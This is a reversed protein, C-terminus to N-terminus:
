NIGGFCLYKIELYDDMGYKSGERGFGSEKIGGFPAVTTSIMGTNIGVMGYELAEAVRWIQANNNGYFYSALGFPTDNAFAIVEEETTFKFIPAVPGFIEEKYVEMEPSANSLVTPEYILTGEIRNGGTVVEAGKDIADKVINDVFQVAKEEILPGVSVNKDMGNGVVLKTVAKSYATVFTDYIKEQVFIRNTCVCTQGANRYKSTIAGEVAADIDADEFVIFPANGGLEMSVKKVTDACQKLLIKGVPTSGTFSLKKVLSNSCLEKGIARADSGTVINIVGPPIGAKEALAALALASYPTLTPPKVVVTCGAALAPAVKRTIMANPFNWPTIAAVVGIPQKITLIRKDRDHGPIVDGYNRRAEEAFWEVFSAGYKIEGIAEQLPKGQELTLIRGLEDAHEIQLQFWKKLLNARETASYKKWDKFAESAADIAMKTEEQGCDSVSGIIQNNFPNYVEFTKSSNSDVWLGNIYAKNKLLEM